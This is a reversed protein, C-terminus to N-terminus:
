RPHLELLTRFLWNTRSASPVFAFNAVRELGGGVQFSVASRANSTWTALVRGRKESPRRSVLEFHFGVDNPGTSASRYTNGSRAEFAGNIAIIGARQFDTDLTLYGGLGRPGLQDGLVLGSKTLPYHTHTYYRTGTQHYEARLGVRGCEVLCSLSTGLLYAADEKVSRGITRGDVDDAAMEGYLEFGAWRPMRWRMDLGALKNSFQFDGKTRVADVIPIVDLVRDWLNAEQGGNGGMVDLVQVGIEFQPHPLAAVHYAILKSHPYIIRDRGLDALVLSGRIGHFLRSLLPVNWAHENWVRIMDLPPANASLVVGGIPSQSFLAADRGVGIALDGLVVNASARQLRLNTSSQAGRENVTTLQPSLTGAFYRGITAAHTSEFLLTTGNALPRGLRNSAFPNIDQDIVGLQDTPALRTPSEMVASELRVEDVARQRERTYRAIDAAITPEAWARAAPRRDLNRRAENLLRLVERESFPRVGVILSDILGLAALREIDRYVVGDPSVIPTAQAIAETSLAVLACCAATVAVRRIM